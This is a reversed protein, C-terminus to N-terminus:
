FTLTIIVPLANETRCGSEGGAQRVRIWLQGCGGPDLAGGAAEQDGSPGWQGGSM